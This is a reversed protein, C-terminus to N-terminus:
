ARYLERHKRVFEEFSFVDAARKISATGFLKMKEPDNLLTLIKAAIDAPDNVRALLGTEGDAVVDRSGLVDTAVVPVGRVMAELLVYPLGEYLSSLVLVDFAAYLEEADERHGLIRFHEPSVGLTALQARLRGELPGGGVLVFITEPRARLVEAAARAFASLGKQPALRAVMGAVAASEALGLKARAQARANPPLEHPEISNRIVTLKSAECLNCDLALARQSESVCVITRAYKAAHHELALYIRGRAGGAAQFPLVHPTHIVNAFSLAHAARRGVFGAKASHTHILDPKFERLREKIRSLARLDMLPRIARQLDSIFVHRFNPYRAALAALEDHFGIEGRDGFLGLVEFGEKPRLFVHLLDRLHKRVGGQTAECIYCLRRLPPTPM